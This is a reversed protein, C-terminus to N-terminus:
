DISISESKPFLVTFKSGKGKESEVKIEAHNLEVFKKVLALGLGNGEFKRTYGQDEQSFADFIRPLYSKDIGIGTDIVSIGLRDGEDFTEITIEGEETYKIANDILNEIIKKASYEDAYIGCTKCQDNYKIPLNKRKAISEFEIVLANVIDHLQLKSFKPDYSGTQLQSMNIILDITRIIREGADKMGNFVWNLEGKGEEQYEEQILSSYNLLINLPTRIEHSIQALFESKLRDSAEAKEKAAILENEYEILKTIDQGVKVYHVVNGDEDKVPAIQASEYYIDGNKKQNIFRGRWVNGNKLKDWMEQYTEPPTLGSKFMRPTNGLVENLKYGTVELLTPNVYEIIENRDTIEVIAPSQTVAMSLKKLEDEAKKRESIDRLIGLTAIGNKYKIYSTSTECPIERGDKTLVYFEYIKDLEKGERQMKMRKEIKPISRPAVMQMFNFEDSNVEELTYGTLETFKDNILEFKGAYLLYIVDNSSEIISRFLAESDALQKTFKVRESIDRVVALLYTNKVIKVPSLSVEAVFTSGDTRTHIWEFRQPEGSFAAEIYKKAKVTSKEGDPQQEPSFEWPHHGVMESKHKCGFLELTKNNCDVFTTSDMFFIADNANDFISKYKIESKQLAEEVKALRIKLVEKNEAIITDVEGKRIADLMEDSFTKDLRKKKM